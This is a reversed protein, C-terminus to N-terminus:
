WWCMYYVRKGLTVEVCARAIIEIDEKLRDENCLDATHFPGDSQPLTGELLDDFLDQLDPLSLYVKQCNFASILFEDDGFKVTHTTVEPRYKKLWLREFWANLDGHKRWRAIEEDDGEPDNTNKIRLYMDLGM